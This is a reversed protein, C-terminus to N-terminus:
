ASIRGVTARRVQETWVSALAALLAIFLGQFFYEHFYGFWDPYKSAIVTLVMLRAINIATLTTWGIAIGSARHLWPAPYALVFMGYVLLVFVGTCEHNIELAAHPSKIITGEVTANAGLWNGGAAVVRAMARQIPGMREHIGGISFLLSALFLYLLLRVVFGSFTPPREPPETTKRASRPRSTM